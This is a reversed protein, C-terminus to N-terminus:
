STAITDELIGSPSFLNEDNDTKKSKNGGISRISFIIRNTKFVNWVDCIICNKSVLSKIENIDIKKYYTHNTAIFVFDADKLVQRIDTNYKNILPDHLVVNARERELAKNVKFALSERTDDINAKFALGLIAAKKGQLKRRQKIKNILFLPISENIKWSTAILDVFPVDSILFFGDKFLCPGGTLGPLSLGGRNYNKNVLDVIKYIDRSHNGALIMFENAIAFNIYRYMNTFLKALEASVDDSRNVAIELEQFFAAAKQTSKADVGGIIQPIQSLEEISKGEAIREPCFALFFNNGVKLKDLDNISLRVYNTTGPSVTSRLILLQGPRLYPKITKLANDIQVLSPNMNDDVPTGLTLIVVKSKAVLAFDTTPFFLSNLHKKLLAPAGEELFPMKGKNITEVKQNDVDLGYVKHGKNALFLALPLGVRGIGVVSVIQAKGTKESKQAM